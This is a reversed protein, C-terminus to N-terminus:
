LFFRCFTETICWQVKLGLLFSPFPPICSYGTDIKKSVNFVIELKTTWRNPQEDIKLSRSTHFTIFFAPSILNSTKCDNRVEKGWCFCTTDKLSCSDCKGPFYKEFRIMSQHYSPKVKNLISLKFEYRIIKNIAANKLFHSIKLFRKWSSM